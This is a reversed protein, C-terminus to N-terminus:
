HKPFPRSEMSKKIEAFKGFIPTAVAEDESPFMQKRPPLIPIHYNQTAM